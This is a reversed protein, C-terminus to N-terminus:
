RGSSEGNVVKDKRYSGLSSGLYYNVVAGFATGLSGLLLLAPESVDPTSVVINLMWFFGCIVVLAIGGTVWAGGYGAKALAVERARADQVNLLEADLQARQWALLQSQQEVELQKLKLLINPDQLAKAVVQPEPEVGLFSSILTGAAGAIAGVPGGLAAGLVPAVKAVSVGLENWDM